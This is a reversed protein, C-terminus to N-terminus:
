EWSTERMLGVDARAGAVRWMRSASLKSAARRARREANGDSPAFLFRSQFHGRSRGNHSTAVAGSGPAGRNFSGPDWVLIDYHNGGQYLLFCRKTPQTTRAAGTGSAAGAGASPSRDESGSNPEAGGLFALLGGGGEAGGFVEENTNEIDFVVVQAGMELECFISLELAGGWTNPNLVEQSYNAVFDEGLALKLANAHGEVFGACRRRLEPALVTPSPTNNGDGPFFARSLCHFLCSNDAPVRQVVFKADGAEDPVLALDVHQAKKEQGSDGPMHASGLKERATTQLNNEVAGLKTRLSALHQLAAKPRADSGASSASFSPSSKALFNRVNNEAAELADIREKLIAALETSAVQFGATASRAEFEQKGHAWLAMVMRHVSDVEEEVAPSMRQQQHQSNQAHAHPPPQTTAGVIRTLKAPNPPPEGFAAQMLNRGDQALKPRSEM